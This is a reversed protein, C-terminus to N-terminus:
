PCEIDSEVAEMCIMLSVRGGSGDEFDHLAFGEGRVWRRPLNHYCECGVRFVSVNLVAMSM